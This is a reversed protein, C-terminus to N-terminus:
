HLEDDQETLFQAQIMYFPIVYQSNITFNFCITFKCVNFVM